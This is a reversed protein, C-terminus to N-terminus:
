TLAMLGTKHKYALLYLYRINPHSVSKGKVMTITDSHSSFGGYTKRM